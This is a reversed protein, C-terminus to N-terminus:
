TLLQETTAKSPSQIDKGVAKGLKVEKVQLVHHRVYPIGGLATDAQFVYMWETPLKPPNVPTEAVIPLNGFEYM